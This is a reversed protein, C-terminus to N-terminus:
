LATESQSRDDYESLLEEVRNRFEDSDGDEGIRWTRAQRPTSEALKREAEHWIEPDRGAPCGKKRWLLHAFYAIQHRSPRCQVTDNAEESKTKM